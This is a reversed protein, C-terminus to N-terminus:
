NLNRFLSSWYSRGAFLTIKKLSSRILKNSCNNKTVDVDGILRSRYLLDITSFDATTVKFLQLMSTPLADFVVAYEKPTVPLNFM